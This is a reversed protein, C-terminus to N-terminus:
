FGVHIHDDHDALPFSAGGLGLLSIVQRPQMDSPLRLLSVVADETIGGPEQHGLIPVTGLRVIDVAEGFVHASVVGPRAYERHGTVLSSVAVQGFTEALYAVVALVRPDVRGAAIDDRGGPYIEIRLDSLVREALEERDVSAEEEEHASAVEQRVGVRVRRRPADGEGNEAEGPDPRDAQERSQAM